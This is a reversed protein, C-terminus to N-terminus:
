SSALTLLLGEERPREVGCPVNPVQHKKLKRKLPKEAKLEVRYMLFKIVSFSLSNLSQLSEVGCPVNPVWNYHWVRIFKCSVKLEVRYMLFPEVVRGSFAWLPAKLEVRYMLFVARVLLEYAILRVKLEVRYMLFLHIVVWGTRQHRPQAKLEVRYM